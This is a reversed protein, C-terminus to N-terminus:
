VAGMKKLVESASTIRSGGCQDLDIEYRVDLVGVPVSAATLRPFGPGVHLFVLEQIFFRREYRPAHQVLYGAALLRDHFERVPGQEAAITRSLEDALSPLSTGGQEVRLKVGCVYLPSRTSDDLQALSRVKAPFGASATTSKAEIAGSGIHFDQEARLPGAWSEVVLAAPYGAQLLSRMLALEGFLGVEREASLPQGGRQMFEQWARVRALFGSMAGGDNLGTAGELWDCLDALMTKFLDIQAADKRAIALWVGHMEEVRAVEVMFGRGEPLLSPPPPTATPFAVVIAEEDTPARRAALIQWRGAKAVPISRWGQGSSQGSLSMWASDFEETRRAM